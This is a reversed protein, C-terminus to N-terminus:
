LQQETEADSFEKCDIKGHQMGVSIEDLRPNAKATVVLQKALRVLSPLSHFKQKIVV